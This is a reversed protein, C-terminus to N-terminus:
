VGIIGAVLDLALELLLHQLGNLHKTWTMDLFIVSIYRADAKIFSLNKDISICCDVQAIQRIEHSISPPTYKLQVEHSCPAARPGSPTRKM